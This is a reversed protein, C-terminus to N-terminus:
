PADEWHDDDRYHRMRFESSIVMPVVRGVIIEPDDYQEVIM